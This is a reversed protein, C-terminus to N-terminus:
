SDMKLMFLLLSLPLMKFVVFLPTVVLLSYENVMTDDVEEDSNDDDSADADSSNQFYM